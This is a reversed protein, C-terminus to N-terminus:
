QNPFEGQQTIGVPFFHSQFRERDTTDAQNRAKSAPVIAGCRAVDMNACDSHIVLSRPVNAVNRLFPIPIGDSALSGLAPWSGNSAM